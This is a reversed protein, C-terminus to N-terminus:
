LLKRFSKIILSLFNKLALKRISEVFIVLFIGPLKRSSKLLLNIMIKFIFMVDGCNIIFHVFIIFAFSKALLNLFNRETRIWLFLINENNM